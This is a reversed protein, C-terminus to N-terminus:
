SGELRGRGIVSGSTETVILACKVRIEGLGDGPFDDDGLDVVLAAEDLADCRVALGLIFVNRGGDGDGKIRQVAGHGGGTLRVVEVGQPTM